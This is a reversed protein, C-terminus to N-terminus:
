PAPCRALCCRLDARSRSALSSKAAEKLREYTEYIEWKKAEWDIDEALAELAEEALVLPLSPSPTADAQVDSVGM